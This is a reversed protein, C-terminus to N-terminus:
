QSLTHRYTRSHIIHPPGSTDQTFSYMGSETAQFETLNHFDDEYKYYTHYPALGALTLQTSPANSSPMIALTIVHPYSQAYLEIHESSSVNINLYDSGTLQFNNGIGLIFGPEQALITTENQAQALPITLAGSTLILLLVFLGSTKKSLQSISM